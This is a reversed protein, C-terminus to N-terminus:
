DAAVLIVVDRVVPRVGQQGDVWEVGEAHLRGLGVCVCFFFYDAGRVADEEFDVLAEEGDDDSGKLQLELLLVFYPRLHIDVVLDLPLVIARRLLFQEQLIHLPYPSRLLLDSIDLELIKRGVLGLPLDLRKRRGLM